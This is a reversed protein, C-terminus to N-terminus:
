QQHCLGTKYGQDTLLLIKKLYVYTFVWQLILAPGLPRLAATNGPRDGIFVHSLDLWYQLLSATM